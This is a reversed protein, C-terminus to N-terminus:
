IRRKPNKQPPKPAESDARAIVRGAAQKDPKIVATAVSKEPKNNKAGKPTDVLNANNSSRTKSPLRSDAMRKEPIAISKTTAISKPIPTKATTTVPKAASASKGLVLTTKSSKGATNLKAYSPNPAKEALALRTIAPRDLVPKIAPRDVIPKVSPRDLVPKTARRDLTPRTSPRDLAVVRASSVRRSRVPLELDEEANSPTQITAVRQISATPAPTRKVILPRSPESSTASPRQVIAAPKSGQDESEDMVLPQDTPTREIPTSVPERRTIIIRSPASSTPPTRETKLSVFDGDDVNVATSSSATTREFSPTSIPERRNVAIRNSTPPTVPNRATRVPVFDDDDVEAATSPPPLTARALNPTSAPTRSVTIRNAAAPTPPLNRYTVSPSEEEEDEAQPSMATLHESTPIIVPTRRVMIPRPQLIDPRIEPQMPPPPALGSRSFGYDLLTRADKWLTGSNPSNMISVILRTGGRSAEGVFCRRAKLTFGTKGGRIGEYSDLLRNSNHVPILRGDGYWGGRSSEVRLAANRTRVVDAFVPNQMAHRFILAMDHATSYHDENPLGHPNMFHSNRAGIQWIRANMLNSFGYVSGGAAEALAEAADNGSKLLLGYLLDHASVTEGARLGIRSPPASAAQPSVSVPSDLNLREMVLLATLVKTTSAPPLRLDAEKAFLVEGTTANMLVAARAAIEPQSFPSWHSQALASGVILWLLTGLLWSSLRWTRSLSYFYFSVM